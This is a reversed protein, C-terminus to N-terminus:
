TDKKYPYQKIAEERLQSSISYGYVFAQEIMDDLIRDECFKWQELLKKQEKNLSKDLEDSIKFKVQQAMQHLSSPQYIEQVFEQFLTILLPTEKIRQKTHTEFEEDFGKLYGAYLEEKKEQYNESPKDKIKEKSFEYGMKEVLLKILDETQMDKVEKELKDKKNKGQM